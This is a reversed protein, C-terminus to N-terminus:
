ARDCFGVFDCDCHGSCLSLFCPARTGPSVSWPPQDLNLALAKKLLTKKVKTQRRTQDPRTQDSRDPRTQDPRTQDPRTQDTQRDTQLADTRGTRLNPMPIRMLPAMDVPTNVLQLNKYLFFVISKKWFNGFIKPWFVALVCTRATNQGFIKPFLQFFDDYKELIFIQM